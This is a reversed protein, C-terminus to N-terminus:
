VLVEQGLRDLLVVDPLLYHLIGFPRPLFLHSQLVIPETQLQNLATQQHALLPPLQVEHPDLGTCPLFQLAVQVLQQPLVKRVLDLQTSLM